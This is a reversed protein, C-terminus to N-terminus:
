TDPDTTYLPSSAVTPIAFECPLAAVITKRGDLLSLDYTGAICDSPQRIGM